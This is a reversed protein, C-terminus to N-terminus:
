FIRGQSVEKQGGGATAGREALNLEKGSDPWTLTTLWLDSWEVVLTPLGLGVWLDSPELDLARIVFCCVGM